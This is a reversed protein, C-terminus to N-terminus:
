DGSAKAGELAYIPVERVGGKLVIPDRPVVDVLGSLAKFTNQSMLVSAPRIKSLYAANNVPVGILTYELRRESGVNGAVVYGSDLGIGVEIPPDGLRARERNISSIEGLMDRAAGVAQEASDEMPTPAGFVVLLGDGQFKDVMGGHELVVDVMRKFYNNLFDVLEEAELERSLTSFGAIDSALMTVRLRQGPLFVKDRNPDALVWDTVQKNVYREFTRRVYEVHEFNRKLETYLRANDISIAALDAIAQLFEKDQDEFIGSRFPNDVYVAGIVKGKVNLPVAIISRLNHLIVSQQGKFRDDLSADTSLVPKASSIVQEVVTRSGLFQRAEEEKTDGAAMRVQLEGTGPEVLVVFGRSAHMLEIVRDMVRKLVEDLDLTSTLEAAVEYLLRDRSGDADAPM